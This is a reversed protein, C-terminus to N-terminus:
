YRAVYLHICTSCVYLALVAFAFPIVHIMFAHSHPRHFRETDAGNAQFDDQAAQMEAKVKLAESRANNIDDSWQRQAKSGALVKDFNKQKKKKEDDAAKGDKGAVQLLFSMCCTTVGALTVGKM